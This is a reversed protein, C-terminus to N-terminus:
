PLMYVEVLAVGSTGTAGGVQVTWAGPLLTVLMASDKSGEALAFANVQQAAGRIEDANTQLGWAGASSQLLGRSTYLELQPEAVTGAVGFGALTPGAARILVRRASSGDIIFGAIMKGQGAGVVGRTSVNIARSTEVSLPETDYAEVLALGTTNNLGTIQATYSGPELTTLIACDGSGAAFPFAGVATTTTGIAASNTANGWGQNTAIIQRSGNFLTLVPAALQGTVGFGALAPGVARLLVQKPTSGTIVFGSILVDGGTGVQGRTSINILRTAYIPDSELVTEERGVIYLRNEHYIGALLFGQVSTRV